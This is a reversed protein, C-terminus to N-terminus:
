AAKKTIILQKIVNERKSKYAVRLNLINQAGKDSWRQGSRKMRVQILTRHAAEMAGSGIRWGNSLYQKYDIRDRNNQVYNKLLRAEEIVTQTNKVQKVQEINQLVLDIQSNLLSKKQQELWIQRERKDAIAIIAFKSFHELLHWLDLILVAMPYAALLWNKIWLAGDTIFILPKGAENLAKYPALEPTMKKIFDTYNGLHAVYTSHEIVPRQEVIDVVSTPIAPLDSLEPLIEAKEAFIRGVKVEQWDDDTFLMSGDCMAYTIDDCNTSLCPATETSLLDGVQEGYTQGLRWFTSPSLSIGVLRSLIASSDNYAESQLLYIAKEKVWPSLHSESIELMYPSSHSLEIAGYNTM